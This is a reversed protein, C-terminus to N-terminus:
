DWFCSTFGPLDEAAGFVLSSTSLPHHQAAGDGGDHGRSEM